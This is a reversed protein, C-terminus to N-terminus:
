VHARGIKAFVYLIRTITAGHTEFDITNERMEGSLNPYKYFENNMNTETFFATKKRTRKIDKEIEDWLKQDEFFHQWNSTKEKSLPHESSKCSKFSVQSNESSDRLSCCKELLYTSKKKTLFGEEIFSEYLHRKLELSEKWKSKQSPLYGLILKWCIPRIIKCKDPTGEMLCLRIEKVDIIENNLEKMLTTIFTHEGSNSGMGSSNLTLGKTIKLLYFLILDSEEEKISRTSVMEEKFDAKAEREPFVSTYVRRFISNKKRVEPGEKPRSFPSKLKFLKKM